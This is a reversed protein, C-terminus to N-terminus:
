LFDEENYTEPYTFSACDRICRRIAQAAKEHDTHPARFWNETAIICASAHGKVNNSRLYELISARPSVAPVIPGLKKILDLRIGIIHHAKQLDVIGAKKEFRTLYKQVAHTCADHGNALSLEFPQMGGQYHTGAVQKGIFQSVTQDKRFAGSLTCVM